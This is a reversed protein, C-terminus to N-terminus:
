KVSEKENSIERTLVQVEMDKGKRSYNRDIRAIYIRSLYEEPRREEKGTREMGMVNEEMERRTQDNYQKEKRKM